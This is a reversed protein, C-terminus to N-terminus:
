GRLRIGGSSLFPKPKKLGLWGGCERRNGDCWIFDIFEPFFSSQVEVHFGDQIAIYKPVDLGTWLHVEREAVDDWMQLVRENQAPVMTPEPVTELTSVERPEEQRLSRRM